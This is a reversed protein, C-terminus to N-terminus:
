RRSFPDVYLDDVQWDGVNDLPTASIQISSPILTGVITSLGLVVSMPQAPTWQNGAQVVNLVKTQVASIGLVKYSATILLRSSPDGGNRAMLRFVPTDLAVCVAPSTASSGAPLALSSGDAASHIYFSENGGVAHAGGRLAWGSAGSEFGGDPALVYNRSDQWPSYVQKANVYSCAQASSVGAGLLLATAATAAAIRRRSILKKV